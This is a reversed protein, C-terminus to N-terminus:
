QATELTPSNEAEEHGASEAPISPLPDHAALFSYIEDFKSIAGDITFFELARARAAASYKRRLEDDRLLTLCAEAFRTPSGPPVVLGTDGVAETVGGVDTAVCTRGCTMAEILSYPFGESVSSLAVISGAGYAERVNDTRGEFGVADDIGLDSVLEKCRALYPEKGKPPDGFLRLRAHPLEQHVIAFASILTRLDKIPDIRGAWSITPQTPESEAVPFNAPDVGNYVTRIRAPDAGLREEWRRNYVNCPTIIEAERYGLACLQRLFGLYLAKVAWPYPLNPSHLYQERLYIGHESVVMPTDYQWKAALAPLVGLGNTAVHTVDAQVPPHSLPRLCHELLQMATVADHVTPMPRSTGSWRDQWAKTLIQVAKTSYLAASLNGQQAYGFLAALVEAFRQQSSISPDLLCDVLRRILRAPFDDQGGTRPPAHPAGWLPITTLSGVNEPLEWVVQERGTGVLAVLHFDYGPMGRIIQDCWVSVGGFQHPYTGETIMAIRM